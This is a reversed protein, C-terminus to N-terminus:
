DTIDYLLIVYDCKRLTVTSISHYREQGATDWVSVRAISDDVKLKRM